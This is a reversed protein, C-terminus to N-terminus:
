RLRASWLVAQADPVYHTERPTGADATEVRRAEGCVLLREGDVEISRAMSANFPLPLLAGLDLWSDAAGHWLAAQDESAAAGSATLARRTVVGVQFGSRADYAQSSEFGAPTLDTVSTASGRWIVARAALKRMAVGVQHEGDLAYITSAPMDDPALSVPAADFGTWLAARGGIDGAVRVGDTARLCIDELAQFEYLRGDADWVLGADTSRRGMTGKHVGTGVVAGGGAAEAWSREFKGPHLDRAQLVGDVLRWAVAGTKGGSGKSWMGPIIDGRAFLVRLEKFGDCSLLEAGGAPWWCAAVKARATEVLGVPIAGCFGLALGRAFKKPPALLTVQWSGPDISKSKREM